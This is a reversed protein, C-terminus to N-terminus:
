SSATTESENNEDSDNNDDHGFPDRDTGPLWTNGASTWGEKRVTKKWRRAWKDRLRNVYLKGDLHDYEHQLIRAFWDNAEVDIPQGSIDFGQLRVHDARKLPFGYGPVSLCGETEADVDPAEESVKALLTLVPNIVAGREPAPDADEFHWTFIRLGVGVQPAALGVGRAADQTFHMDDVLQRVDDDIETVEAARQHLVPEGHITIPRITPM